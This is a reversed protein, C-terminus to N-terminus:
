EPGFQDLASITTLLKITSAPNMPLNANWSITNFSNNSDSPNLLVVSYAFSEKALGKNTIITQIKSPLYEEEACATSTYISLFFIIGITFQYFPMSLNFKSFLSMQFCIQLEICIFKFKFM